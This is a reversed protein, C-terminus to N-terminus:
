GDVAFLLHVSRLPIAKEAFVFLSPVVDLSCCQALCLPYSRHPLSPSSRPLLLPISSPSAVVSLHSLSQCNIAGAGAVGLSSSLCLCTTSPTQAPPVSLLLLLSVRQPILTFHPLPNTNTRRKFRRDTSTKMRIPDLGIRHGHPDSRIRLKRIPNSKKVASRIRDM